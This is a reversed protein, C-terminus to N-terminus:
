RGEERRDPEEHEGSGRSGSGEGRGDDEEGGDTEGGDGGEGEERRFKRITEAREKSLDVRGPLKARTLKEKLTQGRKNVILIKRKFVKMCLKDTEVMALFNKRLTDAMHKLSRPDYVSIFKHRRTIEEKKKEVRRLAEERLIERSRALEKNVMKKSYKREMLRTKLEELRREKM